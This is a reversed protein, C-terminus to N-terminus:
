NRNTLVNESPQYKMIMVPGLLGSPVANTYYNDVRNGIRVDIVNEGEKIFESVDFSYPKWLKKGVHEGNLWIEAMDHVRGLDIFTKETVDNMHFTKRYEIFGTFRKNMGPLDLWEVLETSLGNKSTLVSPIVWEPEIEPQHKENYKLTWEGKLEHSEILEGPDPLPAFDLRGSPDIVLWYAELPDFHLSINMNGQNFHFPVANQNGSECNWVSVSGQLGPIVIEPTQSTETNNVLWFFHAGDIIRHQQLMDFAGSIFEVPSTLGSSHKKIYPMLGYNDTNMEYQWGKWHNHFSAFVIDPETM